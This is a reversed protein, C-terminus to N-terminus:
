QGRVAAPRLCAGFYGPGADVRGEAELPVSTLSRIGGTLPIRLSRGIANTVSSNITNLITQDWNNGPEHQLGFRGSGPRLRVSTTPRDICFDGGSCVKPQFSLDVNLDGGFKGIEALSGPYFCEKLALSTKYKRTRADWLIRPPSNIFCSVNNVEFACGSGQPKGSDAYRQPSAAFAGRGTQCFSGEQWMKEFLKNMENLDVYTQVPCNAIARRAHPSPQTDSCIEPVSVGVDRGFRGLQLDQFEVFNPLHTQLQNQSIKEIVPDVYKRISEENYESWRRRGEEAFQSHDEPRDNPDFNARFLEKMGILRQKLGESTVNLRQGEALLAKFDWQQNLGLIPSNIQDAYNPIQRCAHDAPIPRRAAALSTCELRDVQEKFRQNGLGIENMMGNMSVLGSSRGTNASALKNIETEFVKALSTKVGSEISERLPQIMVPLIEGKVRDLQAPPYGSLGSLTVNGAAQTIMEDTIFPGNDQTTITFGSVPNPRTLDVNASLCVKRPSPIRTHIGSVGIARDPLATRNTDLGLSVSASVALENIEFCLRASNSAFEVKTPTLRIQDITVPSPFSVNTTYIQAQSQCKGTLLTGEFIPCPLHFCIRERVSPLLNGSQCLGNQQCDVNRFDPNGQQKEDQCIQRNHPFAIPPINRPGQLLSGLTPSEALNRLVPLFGEGSNQFLSNSVEVRLLQSQCAGAEVCNPQAHLVKGLFLLTLFLLSNM